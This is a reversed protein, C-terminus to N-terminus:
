GCGPALGLIVRTCLGVEPSVEAGIVERGAQVSKILPFFVFEAENDVVCAESGVVHRLRGCRIVGPEQLKMEGIVQSDVPVNSKQAAHPDRVVMASKGLGSSIRADACGNLNGTQMPNQASEVPVEKLGRGM